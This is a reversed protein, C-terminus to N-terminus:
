KLETFTNYHDDTYWASGDSGTVLREAGRNQGEVKPNVDWERYAITNGSGDRKPLHGEYNMFQRGGVYGSMPEYHAKVYNWVKYVKEPIDKSAEQSEKEASQNRPKLQSEPDDERPQQQSPSEPTELDNRSPLEPLSPNTQEQIELQTPHEKPLLRGLSFGVVLALLAVILTKSYKV